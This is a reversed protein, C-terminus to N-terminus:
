PEWTPVGPEPESVWSFPQPPDVATVSSDGSFNHLSSVRRRLSEGGKLGAFCLDSPPPEEQNVKM